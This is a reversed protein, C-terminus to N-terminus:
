CTAAWCPRPPPSRMSGGSSDTGESGLPLAGKGPWAPCPAKRHAASPVEHLSVIRLRSLAALSTGVLTFCLLTLQTVVHPPTGTLPLALARCTTFPAPRPECCKRPELAAGTHAPRVAVARWARSSSQGWVSSPAQWQLHPVPGLFTRPQPCLLVQCQRGHAGKRVCESDRLRSNRPQGCSTLSLFGSSRSLSLAASGACLSQSLCACEARLRVHASSM